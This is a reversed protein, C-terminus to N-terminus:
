RGHAEHLYARIAARAGDADRPAGLVRALKKMSQDVVKEVSFADDGNSLVDREAVEILTTSVTKAFFADYGDRLPETLEDYRRSAHAILRDSSVATDGLEAVSEMISREVLTDVLDNLGATRNAHM